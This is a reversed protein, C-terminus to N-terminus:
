RRQDIFENDAAGCVEEISVPLIHTGIEAMLACVRVIEGLQPTDKFEVNICLEFEETDFLAEELDTISDRASDYLDELYADAGYVCFHLGELKSFDVEDSESAFVKGEIFLGKLDVGIECVDKVTIVPIPFEEYVLEGKRSVSHGSYWAWEVEADLKKLTNVIRVAKEKLPAYVRNLEEMTKKLNAM